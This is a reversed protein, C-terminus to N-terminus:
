LAACIDMIARLCEHMGPGSILRATKIRYRSIYQHRIGTVTAITSDDMKGPLYAALFTRYQQKDTQKDAAAVLHDIIQELAAARDIGAILRDAQRDTIQMVTGDDAVYDLSDCRAAQAREAMVAANVRKYVYDACAIVDAPTHVMGLYYLDLMAVHAIQILDYADCGGALGLDANVKRGFSTNVATDYPICEVMRRKGDAGQVAKRTHHKVDQYRMDAADQQERADTATDALSCMWDWQTTSATRMTASCEQMLERIRDIPSRQYITRLARYVLMPAYREMVAAYYDTPAAAAGSGTWPTDQTWATVRSVRTDHVTNGDVDRAYTTTTKTGATYAPTGGRLQVAIYTKTKM